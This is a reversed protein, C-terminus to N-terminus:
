SSIEQSLDSSIEDYIREATNKAWAMATHQDATWRQGDWIVWGIEDSYRLFESYRAVLRQSNRIDTDLFPAVNIPSVEASM